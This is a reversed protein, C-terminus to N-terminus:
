LLNELGMGHANKDNLRQVWNSYPLLLTENSGTHLLLSPVVSNPPPGEDQNLPVPNTLAQCGWTKNSLNKM